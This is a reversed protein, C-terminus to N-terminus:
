PRSRAILRRIPETLRHLPEPTIVPKSSTGSVRYQVLESGALEVVDSLVAVRPWNRPNAGVLNLEIRDTAVNWLGEGVLRIDRGHIEVSTLRLVRGECVFHLEAFDLTEDVANRLRLTELLDALVPVRVFSTDYVRLEGSGTRSSDDGSRGRLTVSADFRGQKGISRPRLQIEDSNVGKLSLSLEYAQTQPAYDLRALLAGGCITGRVDRLQITARDGSTSIHGSLDSIARGALKGVLIDFGLDLAANGNPPIEVAGRIMGDCNELLLGLEGRFDRLEVTGDVHWFDSRHV